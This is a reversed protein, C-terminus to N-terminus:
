TPSTGAPAAWSWDPPTSASFRTDLGNTSATGVELVDRYGRSQTTASLSAEVGAGLPSGLTCTAHGAWVAFRIRSRNHRASVSVRQFFVRSLTGGAAHYEDAGWYALAWPQVQKLNWTGSGMAVM